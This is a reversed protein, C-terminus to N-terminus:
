AQSNQQITKNIDDIIIPGLLELDAFFLLVTVM